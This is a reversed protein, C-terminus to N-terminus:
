VVQEPTMAVAKKLAEFGGNAKYEDLDVPNIRGSLRTVFIHELEKRRAPIEFRGEETLALIAKAAADGGKVRSYFISEGSDLEAEVIPEAYCHGICGVEVVPIGEACRRFSELVAGAGAALGCSATGVKIRKISAM